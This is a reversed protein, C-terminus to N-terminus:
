LNSIIRINRVFRATMSREQVAGLRVLRQTFGRRSLTRKIGADMAWAQYAKYLDSSTETAHADWECCDEVFQAAQDAELRWDNKAAESSPPRTFEGRIIVGALADLAMNLIGPLEAKLKRKLLKDQEHEEFTRNFTLIVARRFLAQSFDRTHPMHNTGFWCTAFPHFDFPPKLKHEATTLEGSVIAKLEADAIEAGESIETVLNVLKNQMHARQFRNDFQSPQVACVNKEGVLAALVDMIVSKGNGGPGILLFFKEYECSSLLSYGLAECVLIQKQEKDPDDRFIEELFRRFRLAVAGPTWPVPLCTTRYGERRHPHLAWHDGEWHLEGNDLVIARRDKDFRHEPMFVENQLLNTVGNVFASSLSPNGQELHQITQKIEMDEAKRWHKENWCWFASQAYLVNKAGISAAARRAAALQPSIDAVIEEDSNTAAPLKGFRAEAKAAFTEADCTEALRKQLEPWQSEPADAVDWGQPVDDPPLIFAISAAGAEKLRAHLSLMAGFGPADADPWLLVTHGALPLVDTKRVAKCGGQWSLCVMAPFIRSAADATKEGELLLVGADPAARALRDLGYLPRPADFAKWRWFPKGDPYTWCTLPLIEKKLAGEADRSEFRCVYGLLEGTASRYAWHAVAKGRERHHFTRATVAATAPIVPVLDAPNRRKKGSAPRVSLGLEEALTRAAEPQKCGYVAAWLSILDGGKEAGAFEAWKGSNLNISFSEGAGGQLSGCIYEHGRVAGGPLMRELLQPCRRLAADNIAAFDLAM